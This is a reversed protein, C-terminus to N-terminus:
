IVQLAEIQSLVFIQFSFFHLLIPIVMNLLKM